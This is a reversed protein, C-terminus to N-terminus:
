GRGRKPKMETENLGRRHRKGPHVDEAHQRLLFSQIFHAFCQGIPSFFEYKARM